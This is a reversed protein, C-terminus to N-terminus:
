GDGDGEEPPAMMLKSARRQLSLDMSPPEVDEPYQIQVIDYQKGDKPVAIDHVDVDRQQPIRLLLDVRAEAQKAAWFRTMGVTREEYRLSGAKLTLGDQPKEGPASINGMSYISCIGDNFTQTKQRKQLM